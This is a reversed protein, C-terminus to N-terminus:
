RRPGIQVVNGSQPMITLGHHSIVMIQITDKTGIGGNGGSEPMIDVEFGNPLKVNLHRVSAPLPMDHIEGPAPMSFLSGGDGCLFSELEAVRESLDKIIRADREMWDKAWKPTYRETTM